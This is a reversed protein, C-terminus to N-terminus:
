NAANPLMAIGVPNVFNGSGRAILTQEGTKENIRIIAGDFLDASEPNITYPDSVILQGNPGTAIGVPGVLNAGESLITQRGSRTDIQIVRGVGFNMDGTAVDTVYLYKGRAAIGQPRKLYGGKALIMQAGSVPDVRVVAGLADVVYIQDKDGLAIAIPVQFLNPASVLVQTGSDPNVRLLSQGNAVLIMGTQEVTIGFPLGLLGGSCILRQEGTNPNIGFLGSCGTDSVFVEGKPGVAIGFPQMLKEGQSVVQSAGSVSDARLIAAQSDAFVLQCSETATASIAAIATCLIAGALTNTIYASNRESNSIKTKLQM